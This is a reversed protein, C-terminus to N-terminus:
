ERVLTSLMQAIPSTVLRTWSVGTAIWSAIHKTSVAKLPLGVLGSWSVM